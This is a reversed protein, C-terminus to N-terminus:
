NSTIQMFNIKIMDCFEKATKLSDENTVDENIM